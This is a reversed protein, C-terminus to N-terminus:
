AQAAREQSPLTVDLVWSGDVPGHTIRGGLIRVREDMGALGYGSHPAPEQRRRAPLPSRVLVSTECGDHRIEVDVRGGPEAHRLVNTSAEQVIRRLTHRLSDPVEAEAELRVHVDFGAATLRDRYEAVLERVPLPPEADEAPGLGPAAGRLVGLMTRLDTLSQRATDAIAQEVETRQVPSTVTPLMGAQLAIVTLGHGVVDHLELALRHREDRQAQELQTQREEALRLASDFRRALWRLGLGAAVGLAASVAFAVAAATSFSGLVPGAIVFWAAFLGGALLLLGRQASLGLMLAAGAFVISLAEYDWWRAGATFAIAYAIVGLPAHQAILGILLYEGALQPLAEAATVGTGSFALVVDIGFVVALSIWVILRIRLSLRRAGFPGWVPSDPRGISVTAM